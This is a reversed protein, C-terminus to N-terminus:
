VPFQAAMQQIAAVGLAFFTIAEEEELSDEPHAVPNRYLDKMDRLMATVKKSVGAKELRDIYAGWNSPKKNDGAAKVHGWLEHMVLEVARIMHFGSATPLDFVLCRGAEQVDKVVGAPLLKRTKEPIMTEAHEVLDPTSYAGKQSVVYSALSDVEAKLVSELKALSSKLSVATYGLKKKKHTTKKPSSLKDLDQVFSEVASRSIRLKIAPANLLSKLELGAFLFELVYADVEDDEDLTDLFALEKGLEYFRYLSVRDM